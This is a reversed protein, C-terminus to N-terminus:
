YKRKIIPQAIHLQYSLELLFYQITCTVINDM